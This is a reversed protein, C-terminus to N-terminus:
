GGGSLAWRTVTDAVAGAHGHLFHDASEVVVVEVNRWGATRQTAVDPPCFQDHRPCVVLTPVLPPAVDGHGLPPAVAGVATIRSDDTTLAVVAGFSYGVVLRPTGDLAPVADLADLAAVVDLREDIGGGFEHRFDFRIAACGAVPLREFLATVVHDFRNGGFRPHPHCVVVAPGVDTGSAPVTLDADLHLGDATTLQVAEM